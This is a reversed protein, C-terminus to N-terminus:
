TTTLKPHIFDDGDDESETQEEDDDDQAIEDNDHEDDDEDDHTTENVDNKDKDEDDQAKEDDQDDIVQNGLSIMRQTMILHMSFGQHLVLEKMETLVAESITKLEKAKHQGKGSKKEKPVIPP